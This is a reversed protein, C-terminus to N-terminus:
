HPNLVDAHFWAGNTPTLNVGTNEKQVTCSAFKEALTFDIAVFDLHLCCDCQHAFLSNNVESYALPWVSSLGQVVESTNEGRMASRNTDIKRLRTPSRYAKKTPWAHALAYTYCMCYRLAQLDISRCSRTRRIANTECLYQSVSTSGECSEDM